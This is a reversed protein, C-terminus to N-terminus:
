PRAAKRYPNHGDPQHKFRRHVWLYQEPAKLVEAEILANIHTADAEDDGSPFDSLPASFCIRYRGGPLRFHSVMVVPSGSMRALRSTATITAAPVGFFPAFVAHKLGYDQDPAYWLVGGNRLARVMGRIDKRDIYAETTSGAGRGRSIMRELVPNNNPRHVASLPVYRPILRSGVDITNMHMGVLLVGKGQAKAAQIHELGEIELRADLDIRSNAYTGAIELMTEGTSIVARRALDRREAEPLDPFCLDINTCAIHRRNGGIRWVLRGLGRGLALLANWPLQGILWILGVVCWTGWYRPHALSTPRPNPQKM